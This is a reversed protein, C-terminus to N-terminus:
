YIQIGEMRIGGIQLNGQFLSAISSTCYTGTVSGNTPAVRYQYTHNMTITSDTHSSSNAAKTILDSFGGGDVNRQVKYGDELSTNDRWHFTLSSSNPTKVLYCANAEEMARMTFQAVSSYSGVSDNTDWFRIRWYYTTGTLGLANGAYSIDSSRAGNAVTISQKGSDWMSTGSFDSHTNVQIQYSASSDSEPDNHIASFEPTTDTVSTPNTSGETWLDTPATPAATVTFSFPTPNESTFSNTGAPDIAYSRWYYTTDAILDSTLTYIAQTGSTYATNGQTNQGTWGTQSSTQDFTQCSSTMAANTCIQIKYRLYDSDQDTATTRLQPRLAVSPNNNTPLDMAPYSPALERSFAVLWPYSIPATGSLTTQTDFTYTKIGNSLNLIYDTLFIPMLDGSGNNWGGMDDTISVGGNQIRAIVRADADTVNAGAAVVWESNNFSNVVKVSQQNVWSGSSTMVTGTTNEHAM